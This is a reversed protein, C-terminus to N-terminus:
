VPECRFDHRQNSFAAAVTPNRAVKADALIRHGADDLAIARSKAIWCGSFGTGIRSSGM